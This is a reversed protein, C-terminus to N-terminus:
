NGQTRSWKAGKISVDTTFVRYNVHEDVLREELSTTGDGSDIFLDAAYSNADAFFSELGLNPMLGSNGPDYRASLRIMSAEDVVVMTVQVMPPLQNKPNIEPDSNTATSDYLYNAALKTGSSDEKPSLKPQIVLAVVNEALVKARGQGVADTFWDHGVYTLNRPLSNSDAGSTFQYIGLEDAPQMLEMLRFRYRLPVTTGNICAPRLAADSSFEVYYGWTNLLNSLGRYNSQPEVFGLPAQFFIGHTPRPPVTSGLLTEAPGSIFRLESQRVYRSPTSPNDYDWYTNLTAQSLRRTITEFATRAEQFQASKSNIQRSVGSVKNVIGLLIGLMVSVIALSVLLEVLTFAGRLASRDRAPAEIASGKM